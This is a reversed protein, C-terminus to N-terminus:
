QSRQARGIGLSACDWKGSCMCDTYAMGVDINCEDRLRQIATRNKMHIWENGQATLAQYTVTLTLPFSVFNITPTFSMKIAQADTLIFNQLWGPCQSTPLPSILTSLDTPVDVIPFGPRGAVWIQAQLGSQYNYFFDSLPQLQNSNATASGNILRFCAGTILTDMIITQNSTVELAPTTADPLTTQLIYAWSQLPAGLAKALALQPSGARLFDEVTSNNGLTGCGGSSGGSPPGGGPTPCAGLGYNPFKSGNNENEAM